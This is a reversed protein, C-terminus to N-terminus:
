PTQYHKESIRRVLFGLAVMVLSCVGLWSTVGFMRPDDSFLELVYRGCGYIILSNAFVMGNARYSQKKAYELGWYAVGVSLLIICAQLPFVVLGNLPNLVGWLMNKGACCGSLWCAVTVIGHNFFFYPTLADCLNLTDVQCFKSLALGLLPLFIISRYSAVAGVGFIKGDLNGWAVSVWSFLLVFTLGTFILSKLWSLGYRRGYIVSLIISCYYCTNGFDVYFRDRFEWSLEVGLIEVIMCGLFCLAAIGFPLYQILKRPLPQQGMNNTERTSAKVM